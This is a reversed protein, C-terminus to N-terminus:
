QVLTSEKKAKVNKMLDDEPQNARLGDSSRRQPETCHLFFSLPFLLGDPHTTGAGVYPVTGLSSTLQGFFQTHDGCKSASAVECVWFVGCGAGAFFFPSPKQFDTKAWCQSWTCVPVAPKMGDAMHM